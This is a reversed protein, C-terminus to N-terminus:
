MSLVFLSMCNIIHSLGGEPPLDAAQKQYRVWDLAVNTLRKVFFVARQSKPLYKKKFVAHFM